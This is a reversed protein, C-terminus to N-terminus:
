WLTRALQTRHDEREPEQCTPQQDTATHLVLPQLLIKGGEVAGLSGEEYSLPMGWDVVCIHVGQRLESEDCSGTEMGATAV